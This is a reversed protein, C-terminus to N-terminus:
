RTTKELIDQLAAYLIDMQEDTGVTVRVFDAIRAKDFHRVLVGRDKLALYLDKGGIREHRAFLFNSYSPLVFFGLSELRVKAETRTKKVKNVCDTFYAVDEIAAKGLKETLRNVNYPNFSYKVTKLDDLLAKPAFTMGLRAGALSRSKSFTQVVILNDYEKILPVASDAGFDVYAEDVVVLRDPDSQALRRVDSLEIKLGTPANPNAFVLHKKSRLMAEVDITFDERLPIEEYSAGAYDAFIPYFGYTIDPFAVARKQDFFACFLFALSEDSGNTVLVNQESVGYLDAIARVLESSEPDSYLRLLKAEDDLVSQAAPCPPYPNENTNLKVYARDKPQEGPVYPVLRAYGEKLFKSM